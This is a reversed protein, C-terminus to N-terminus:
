QEKDAKDLYVVKWRQNAGGNKKANGVPAGEEDKSNTVDLCKNEYVNCL